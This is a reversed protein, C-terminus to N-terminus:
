TDKEVETNEVEALCIFLKKSSVQKIQLLLMLDLFNHLPNKKFKTKSKKRCKSSQTYGNKM